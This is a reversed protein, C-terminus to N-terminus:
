YRPKMSEPIFHEKVNYGFNEVDVHGASDEHLFSNTPQDYMAQAKQAQEFSEQYLQQVRAKNARGLFVQNTGMSRDYTTKTYPSQAYTGQVPNPGTDATHLVMARAKNAHGLFVQNTGMSRDYTTKTYPSQAYTGQVPNPGQAAAHLSTAHQHAVRLVGHNDENAPCPGKVGEYCMGCEKQAIHSFEQFDAAKIPHKVYAPCESVCKICETMVVKLQSTQSGKLGHAYAWPKFGYDYEEELATGAAHYAKMFRRVLSPNREEELRVNNALAKSEKIAQKEQWTLGRDKYWLAQLATPAPRATLLLGACAVACLALAVLARPAVTAM